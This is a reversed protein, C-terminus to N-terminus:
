SSLAAVFEEYEDASLDDIVLADASAVVPAAALQEETLDRPLLATGYPGDTQRAADSVVSM